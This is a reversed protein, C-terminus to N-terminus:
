NNECFLHYYRAIRTELLNLSIIGAERVTVKGQIWLIIAPVSFVQYDAALKPLIEPEAKLLKIKPYLSLMKELKPFMDRCVNCSEGGFYLLVMECTHISEEPNEIPTGLKM